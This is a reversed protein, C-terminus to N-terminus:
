GVKLVLCRAMIDHLAQRKQTFAAMWFGIGFFMGSVAKGIFRGSARAFSLTEYDETVVVMKLLHKGPTAQWRGSEFLAYYLWCGVVNAFPSLTLTMLAGNIVSLIAADIMLALARWGFSAPQLVAFPPMVTVEPDSMATLM